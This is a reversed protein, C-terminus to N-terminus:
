RSSMVESMTSERTGQLSNIQGTPEDDADELVTELVSVVLVLPSLMLVPGMFKWRLIWDTSDSACNLTPYEGNRLKLTSSISIITARHTCIPALRSPGICYGAIPLTAANLAGSPCIIPNYSGVIHHFLILKM